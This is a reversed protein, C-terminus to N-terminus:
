FLSNIVAPITAVLDSATVTYENQDLVATEGAKGFLYASAATAFLIEDTRSLLGATIGSLVDGSGAKAMAPTGTTNIFVEEGDTIVSVANKLLLTVDYTKAFNIALNISNELIEDKTKNTLRAFEGIHPTLIVKCKKTKLADVGYKAISNLGDADILLKGEYNELLYKITKYIEESVGCGM